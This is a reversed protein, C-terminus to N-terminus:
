CHWFSGSPQAGLSLFFCFYAPTPHLPPSPPSGVQGQLSKWLRGVLLLRALLLRAAVWRLVTSFQRLVGTVEESPCLFSLVFAQKGANTEIQAAINELSEDLVDAPYQLSGGGRQLALSLTALGVQLLRLFLLM